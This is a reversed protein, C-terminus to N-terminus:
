HGAEVQQIRSLPLGHGYKTVVLGGTIRDGLIEEVVQAMRSTAKGAGIVTLKGAICYEMGGFTFINGAVEITERICTSPNVAHLASEWIERAFQRLESVIM